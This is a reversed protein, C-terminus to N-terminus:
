FITQAYTTEAAFCLTLRRCARSANTRVHLSHLRFRMLYQRQTDITSLYAVCCNRASLSTARCIGCAWSRIIYASTMKGYGVALIRRLATIHTRRAYRETRVFRPSVVLTRKLGFARLSHAVYMQIKFWEGCWGPPFDHQFFFTFWKSCKGSRRQRWNGPSIQLHCKSPVMRPCREYQHCEYRFRQPAPIFKSSFWAVSETANEITWISPFYRISISNPKTQNHFNSISALFISEYFSVNKTHPGTM